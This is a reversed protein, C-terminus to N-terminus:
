WIKYAWVFNDLYINKHSTPWMQIASFYWVFYGYWHYYVLEFESIPTRFIYTVLINRRFLLYVILFMRPIIYHFSYHRRLCRTHRQTRIQAADAAAPVFIVTDILLLCRLPWAATMWWAPRVGSVSLHLAIQDSVRQDWTWECSICDTLFVFFGM